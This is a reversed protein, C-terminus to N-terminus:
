APIGIPRVYLPREKPRAGIAQRVAGESFAGMVITGIGLATAQLFVNQAAHGSEQYVYQACRKGYKAATRSFVGTM